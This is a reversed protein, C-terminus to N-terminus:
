FRADEFAGITRDQRRDEQRKQLRHADLRIKARLDGQQGDIRCGGQSRRRQFGHVRIQSEDPEKEASSFANEQGERLGKRPDVRLAARLGSEQSGLLSGNYNLCVYFIRDIGASRRFSPRSRAAMESVDFRRIAERRVNTRDGEPFFPMAKSLSELAKRRRSRVCRSENSLLM